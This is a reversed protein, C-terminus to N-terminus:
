LQRIAGLKMENDSVNYFTYILTKDTLKPYLKTGQANNKKTDNNKKTFCRPITCQFPIYGDIDFPSGFGDIIDDPSNLNLGFTTLDIGQSLISYETSAKNLKDEIKKLGYKKKFNEDNKMGPKNSNAGYILNSM